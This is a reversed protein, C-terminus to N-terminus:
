GDMWGGVWGGQASVSEDDSKKGKTVAIIAALTWGSTAALGLPSKLTDLGKLIPTSEPHLSHAPMWPRFLSLM